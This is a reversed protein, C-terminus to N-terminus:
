LAIMVTKTELYARIGDSSQERGMGSQKYGGFPLAPDVAANCNGWVTGAKIRAALKHMTSLDRTWVSASLGFPTDNACRIVEDLDDFRQAVLVPGFIEEDVVKMGPKVDAIITPAVYYGDHAPADGGLLVSGGQKVGSEVYRMVRDLQEASVLPGMKSGPVLSPGMM